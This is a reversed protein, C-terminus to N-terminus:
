RVLHSYPEEAQDILVKIPPGGKANPNRIIMRGALHFALFSERLSRHDATSDIVIEGLIRRRSAETSSLLDATSLETVWVFKPMRMSRYATAFLPSMGRYGAKPLLGRKFDNSKRLYPRKMLNRLQAKGIRGDPDKTVVKSLGPIHEVLSEIHRFVTPAQLTVGPPCPVLAYRVHDQISMADRTSRVYLKRYPGRQDDQIYFYDVWESNWENYTPKKGSASFNHGVVAVAHGEEDQPDGSLGLLVPLESETYSYVRLAMEEPCERPYPNPFVIPQFGIERMACALQPVSLGRQVQGMTLHRTAAETIQSPRVRRFGYRKSMFLSIMWLAAQACVDVNADQEMFPMGCVTLENGSLNPEFRTKCVIFDTNGNEQAPRLVARGVLFSGTPRIVSFGMYGAKQRESLRPLADKRIVSEFFHLRLCKQPQEAFAKCYFAGYEDLYDEDVYEAEILITRCGALRMDDLIAALPGLDCGSQVFRQSRALEPLIMKLWTQLTRGPSVSLVRINDFFGYKAVDAKVLSGM